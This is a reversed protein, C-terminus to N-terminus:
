LSSIIRPRATRCNCATLLFFIYVSSRRGGESPAYYHMVTGWFPQEALELPIEIDPCNTPSPCKVLNRLILTDLLPAEIMDLFLTIRDGCSAVNLSILQLLNLRHPELPSRSVPNLAEFAFHELTGATSALISRVDEIFPPFSFDPIMLNLSTLHTPNWKNWRVEMDLIPSTIIQPNGPRAPGSLNVRIGVLSSPTILLFESLNPMDIDDAIRKLWEFDYRGVEVCHFFIQRIHHRHEELVDLLQGREYFTARDKDCATDFVHVTILRGDPPFLPLVPNQFGGKRAERVRIWISLDIEEVRLACQRWLHCIHPESTPSAYSSIVCRGDLCM